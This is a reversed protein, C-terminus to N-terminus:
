PSQSSVTLVINEVLEYSKVLVTINKSVRALGHMRKQKIEYNSCM